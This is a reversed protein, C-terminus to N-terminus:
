LSSMRGGGARGGGSLRSKKGEDGIKRGVKCVSGLRREMNLYFNEEKMGQGGWVEIDLKV